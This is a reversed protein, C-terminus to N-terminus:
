QYKMEKVLAGQENWFKWNGITTDNRYNGEYRKQGNEYYVTSKGDKLGNKYECESWVKGDKYWYTWKGKRELRENYNGEIEKKGDEYFKVEGTKIKNQYAGVVKPSGDPHKAEVVEHKSSCGLFFFTYLYLPILTYLYLPISTHPPRPIPFNLTNNFFLKKM